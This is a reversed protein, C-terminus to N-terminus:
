FGLKHTFEADAPGSDYTGQLGEGHLPPDFAFMAAPREDFAPGLARGLGYAGAQARGLLALIRIRDQLRPAYQSGTM